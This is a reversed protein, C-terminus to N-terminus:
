IAEGLQVKCLGACVRASVPGSRLANLQSKAAHYDSVFTQNQYQLSFAAALGALKGEVMAASAEEVGAVDGAVYVTRETTRLDADRWPVYGGLEPVFEMRCGAQWLLETLPSLGVSICLGDVAFYQETGPEMTWASDLRCVTVGDLKSTAM